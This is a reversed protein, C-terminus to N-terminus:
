LYQMKFAIKFSKFISLIMTFCSIKLYIEKSNENYKDRENGNVNVLQRDSSKVLCLAIDVIYYIVPSRRKHCEKLKNEGSSWLIFDRRNPSFAPLNWEDNWLVSKWEPITWNRFIKNKIAIEIKYKVSMVSYLQKYTFSLTPNWKRIM